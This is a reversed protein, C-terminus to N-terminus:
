VPRVCVPRVCTVNLVLNVELGEMGSKVVWSTTEKMRTALQVSCWGEPYVPPYFPSFPPTMDLTGSTPLVIVTQNQFTVLPTVERFIGPLSTSGGNSPLVDLWGFTVNQGPKLVSRPLDYAPVIFRVSALCPHFPQGVRVSPSRPVVLGIVQPLSTPLVPDDDDNVTSSDESSEAQRGSLRVLQPSRGLLTTWDPNSAAVSAVPAVSTTATSSSWSALLHLILHRSICRCCLM